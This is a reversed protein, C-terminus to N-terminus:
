RHASTRLASVESRWYATSTRLLLRRLSTASQASLSNKGECACALKLKRINFRILHPPACQQQTERRRLGNDFTGPRLRPQRVPMARSARAFGFM